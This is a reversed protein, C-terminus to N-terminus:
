EGLSEVWAALLDRKLLIGHRVPVPQGNWLLLTTPQGHLGLRTPADPCHFADLRAIMTRGRRHGCTERWDVWFTLMAPYDVGPKDLELTLDTVEIAGGALLFPEDIGEIMADAKDGMSVAPRM